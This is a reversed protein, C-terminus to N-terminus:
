LEKLKDEIRKVDLIKGMGTFSAKAQVLHAKAGEKDGKEKLVKALAEHVEGLEAPLEMKVLMGLATELHKQATDLEKTITYALGFEIQTFAIGAKEEHRELLKLASKLEKLAEQPKELDNYTSGLNLQAWGKRVEDGVNESIAKSIKFIELAEENKDQDTLCSGLNNYARLLESMDDSGKLIKIAEYLYVEADKCKGQASLTTAWDLKVLATVATAGATTAKQLANDFFENALNYDGKRFHIHGLRRLADAEGVDDGLARSIDMAQRALIVGETFGGLRAKCFSLWRLTESLFMKSPRDDKGDLLARATNLLNIAADYHGQKVQAIGADLRDKAPEVMYILVMKHNM